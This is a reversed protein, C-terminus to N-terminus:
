EYDRISIGVPFRPIGDTTFEQYRVSLRKGLAESGLKFMEIRDERTGRPRVSFEQGAPTTCVWIVCGKEIGDGEKFGVIPYESDLFEKYKQLETSRHGIKYLGAANRLILGEYGEAVYAAHLEKVADISECSVTPLQKLATFANTAFTETLWTNREANTGDRITDYVCLYIKAVKEADGAKLTAKKVLGVIEQFTLDDSYLEGDLITGAPLKNVDAVIHTLHPSSPKGNRSFLGRGSIAVCRVGDLKRQALCPFPMSKGRKNFDQALMPLPVSEIAPAAAAAGAGAGAVAATGTATTVTATGTATTAAATGTATGTALPAYGGDQKKKWLAEAENTAQQLPTTENKRGINKGTTVLRENIQKKGDVYGHTVTIVGAGERATVFVSWMKTKGTSAEGYLIPLSM